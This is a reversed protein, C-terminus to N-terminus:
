PVHQCPILSTSRRSTVSAYRPVGAITSIFISLLSWAQTTLGEPVPVLVRLALGLGVSLALPLPKVGPWARKPPSLAPASSDGERGDQTSAAFIYGTVASAQLVSATSNAPSQIHLLSYNCAEEGKLFLRWPGTTVRPMGSLASVPVAVTPWLMPNVTYLQAQQQQVCNRPM